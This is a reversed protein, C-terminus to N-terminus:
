TPFEKTRDMELTFQLSHKLSNDKSWQKFFFPIKYKQCRSWIDHVWWSDMPRAGPGSEGGVIVWDLFQLQPLNVPTIRELLPEFSVFRVAAPIKHLIQIRGIEDNTPVTTGIWINKPLDKMGLLEYAREVRRTLVQYTHQPTSRMTWFVRKIFQTPIDEHFLDGMSDVFVKWPKTWKHPHDVIKWHVTPKFENVYKEQGMAKLRKAMRKAYCHKCGIDVPTCGTTPNWVKDTWEIKSKAM